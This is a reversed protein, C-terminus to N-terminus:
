CYVILKMEGPRSRPLRRIAPIAMMAKVYRSRLVHQNSIDRMANDADVIEAHEVERYVVSKVVTSQDLNQKQKEAM